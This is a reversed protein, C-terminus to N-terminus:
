DYRPGDHASIREDAGAQGHSGCGDQEGGASTSRVLLRGGGAGRRRTGRGRRRGGPRLEARLRGGREVFQRGREATAAGIRRLSAGIRAVAAALTCAMWGGASM